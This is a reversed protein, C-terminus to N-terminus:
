KTVNIVKGDVINFGKGLKTREVGDLGYIKGDEKVDSTTAKASTVHLERVADIAARLEDINDQTTAREKVIELDEEALQKMGDALEKMGDIRYYPSSTQNLEAPYIQFEGISFSYGAGVKLSNATASVSFRIYRYAKDMVIVPVNDETINQINKVLTWGQADTTDNSVYVDVNKMAFTPWKTSNKYAFQFADVPNSQLDVQIYHFETPKMHKQNHVSIFYTFPDGDLLYAYRGWNTEGEDPMKANSSFQCNESDDDANTILAKQMNVDYNFQEAYVQAATDVLAELQKDLDSKYSKELKAILEADTVQKFYWTQWGYAPSAPDNANYSSYIDPINFVTYDATTGFQNNDPVYHQENATNAITWRNLWNDSPAILQANEQFNSCEIKKASASTNIYTYDSYNQISWKGEEIKRLKFVFKGQTEDLACYRLEGNNRYMAMEVGQKAKFGDYASMIYYYGETLPVIGNQVAEISASFDMGAKELDSSSKEAAVALNAAQYTTEYNGKIESPIDGPTGDGRFEEPKPANALLENLLGKNRCVLVNEIAARLLNVDEVKTEKKAAVQLLSDSLALMYDTKEKLNEISTYLCMPSEFDRTAGYLQFEGISFSYGEGVKLSNATASVSFRIFQYAQDMDIIPDDNESINKFQEILKWNGADTTDNTAYVDLNKIAFTPWKTSNKYKLQFASVPNSKLDVQIYHFEAPKMHKQNHVSIFYTFPDGDLLYAYRGWNTDGEDPMKANSSFQCDASEDDANTILGNESITYVLMEKFINKASDALVPIMKDEISVANKEIEAILEKDTVPKFYWTQWGYAQSAPDNANYNGYIDPINFVTYDATTGFQNNDPVYHQENATNAITWRGNWNTALQIIQEASPLESSEIAKASASTNIFAYDSGNQITWNGSPLQALKFVFQAKSGDLACYRLQGNNKYMAMEVGQKAKFGDFASMIYYYGETLPVIARKVSDRVAQFKAIAEKYEAATKEEGNVVAKADEIGKLLYEKVENTIDGPTGDARYDTSTENVAKDLEKKFETAQDADKVAQIADKMAKIDEATTTHNDIKEQAADILTKMKDAAEKMGSVKYYRSTTENLAAPYFQLEGVAFSYGKGVMLERPSYTVSIRIYQYAKDMVVVPSMYGAAQTDLGKLEDVLVWSSADTTDNTAWIALDQWIFTPWTTSKKFDFAFSAVPNDKLDAQLYHFDEPLWHKQNHLSIFYTAPDGDILNKYRGWNTTGEDPMKANSSYQCHEPDDDDAETILPKNTDIDYTFLEKYLGKAETCLAQLQKDEETKNNKQVKKLVEENTVPKFYWTHWGYATNNPDNSNYSGYIDPMNFVTYDATTGFQNNDPVYHQTNKTNSIFWRGNWATAQEIIQEVELKETGGLKQRDGSTSIYTFDKCNLIAWNGSQQKTLKFVFKDDTEDIKCYRLEGNNRYMAMEVGQKQMFGDFASMIYYYGDTLPIIHNKLDAQTDKLEQLIKGYEADSKNGDKYAKKANSILDKYSKVLESPLDGPSNDGRFGTNEDLEELYEGLEAKKSRDETVSYVNWAITYRQERFVSQLQTYNNSIWYTKVKGNTNVIRNAFCVSHFDWGEIATSSPNSEASDGACYPTFTSADDRSEVLTFKKSGSNGKVYLRSSSQRLYFTPEGYVDKPGTTLLFVCDATIKGSHMEPGAWYMGYADPTSANELVIKQGSAFQDCEIQDGKVWIANAHLCWMSCIMLLTSLTFFKRM